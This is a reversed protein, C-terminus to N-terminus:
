LEDIISSVKRKRSISNENYKEYIDFCFRLRDHFWELCPLLESPDIISSLEDFTWDRSRRNDLRMIKKSFEATIADLSSIDPFSYENLMCTARVINSFLRNEIALSIKWSDQTRDDGSYHKRSISIGRFINKLLAFSFGESDYLNKITKITPCLIIQNVKDPQFNFLMSLYEDTLPAFSESLWSTLLKTQIEDTLKCTYWAAFYEQFSRHTFRYNLGDKVLMCVSLTLDDQFDDVTFFLKDFKARAQEIYERLQAESFEFDSRFYSKFCIYAFVMKFDECGLSSRIDRVYCDKTADHMNFLTAFAEEYFDNLKEPISAHNNFTLLM